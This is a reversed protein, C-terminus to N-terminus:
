RSESWARSARGQSSGQVGRWHTGASIVQPLELRPTSAVRFGINNNSNDPTNNNRQSARCNNSNNNWSGGRLLRNTDYHSDLWLCEVRLILRRRAGHALKSVSTLKFPQSM